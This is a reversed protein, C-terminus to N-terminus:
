ATRASNTFLYNFEDEPSPGPIGPDVFPAGSAVVFGVVYGIRGTPACPHNKCPKAAPITVAHLNRITIVTRASTLSFSVLVPSKEYLNPCFHFILALILPFLRPFVSKGFNQFLRFIFTFLRPFASRREGACKCRSSESQVRSRRDGPNRLMEQSPTTPPRTQQSDTSEL